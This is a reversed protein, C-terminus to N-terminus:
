VESFGIGISDGTEEQSLIYVDFKRNPYQYNLWVHWAERIKFIIADELEELEDETMRLHEAPAGYSLMTEIECWNWNSLNDKSFESSNIFNLRDQYFEEYSCGTFGPSYLFVYNEVLKTKPQFFDSLTLLSIWTYRHRWIDHIGSNESTELEYFRLLQDIM